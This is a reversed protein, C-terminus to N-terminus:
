RFRDSLTDGLQMAWAPAPATAGPKTDPAIIYRKPKCLPADPADPDAVIYKGRGCTPADPASPDLPIEKYRTPKKPTSAQHSSSAERLVQATPTNPIRDQNKTRVSM